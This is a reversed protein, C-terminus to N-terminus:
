IHKRFNGTVDDPVTHIVAASRNANAMKNFMLWMAYIIFPGM